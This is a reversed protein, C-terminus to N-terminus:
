KTVTPLLRGEQSGSPITPLPEKSSRYSANTVPGPTSKDQKLTASQSSDLEHVKSIIRARLLGTTIFLEEQMTKHDEMRCLTTMAAADVRNRVIAELTQLSCGFASMQALFKEQPDIRPEPEDTEDTMDDEGLASDGNMIPVGNIFVETDEIDNETSSSQTRNSAGSKSSDSPSGRTMSQIKRLQKTPSLIPKDENVMSNSTSHPSYIPTPSSM